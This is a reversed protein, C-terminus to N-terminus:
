KCQAAESERASLRGAIWGEIEQLVWAVSGRTAASLKVPRPFSADFSRSRRDLRAYISSRSLSTRAIVDPLRILQNDSM